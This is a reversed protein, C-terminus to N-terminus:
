PRRGQTMPVDL